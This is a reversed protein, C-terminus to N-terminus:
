SGTRRAARASTTQIDRRVARPGPPDGVGVSARVGRSQSIVQGTFLLPKIRATVQEKDGAKLDM